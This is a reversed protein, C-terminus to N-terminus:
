DVFDDINFFNSAFIQSTLHSLFQEEEEPVPQTAGKRGRLSKKNASPVTIKTTTGMDVKSKKPKPKKVPTDKNKDDTNRKQEEKWKRFDELEKEQREKEILERAKEKALDELIQKNMDVARARKEKPYKNVDRLKKAERAKALNALMVKKAEDSIVSKKKQQPVQVEQSQTEKLTADDNADIIKNTDAM